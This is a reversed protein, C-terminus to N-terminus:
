GGNIIMIIRIEDENRVTEDETVIKDNKVVIVGVPNIDLEKLLNEIPMDRNGIKIEKIGGDPLTIKM